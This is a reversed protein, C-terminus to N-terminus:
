IKFTKFINELRSQVTELQVIVDLKKLHDNQGQTAGRDDNANDSDYTMNEWNVTTLMVMRLM